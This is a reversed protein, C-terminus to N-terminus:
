LSFVKHSLLMPIVDEASVRWFSSAVQGEGWQTMEESLVFVKRDAFSAAECLVAPGLLLIDGEKKNAVLRLSSRDPVRNFVFLNKEM